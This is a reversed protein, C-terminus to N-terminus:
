VAIERQWKDSATMLDIAAEVEDGLMFNEWNAEKKQDSRNM